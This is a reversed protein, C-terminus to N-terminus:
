RSVSENLRYCEGVIAVNLYCKLDSQEESRQLSVKKNSRAKNLLTQEFELDSSQFIEWCSEGLRSSLRRDAANLKCNLAAEDFCM